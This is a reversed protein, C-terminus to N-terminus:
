RYLVSVLLVSEGKSFMVYLRIAGDLTSGLFVLIGPPKIGLLLGLCLRLIYRLTWVIIDQVADDARRHGRSRTRVNPM